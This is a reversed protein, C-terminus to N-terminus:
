RETMTPKGDQIKKVSSASLEGQKERKWNRTDTRPAVEDKSIGDMPEIIGEPNKSELQEEETELPEQEISETENGTEVENGAIEGGSNRGFWGM